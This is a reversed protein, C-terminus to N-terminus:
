KIPFNLSFFGKILFQCSSSSPSCLFLKSLYSTLIFRSVTLFSCLVVTCSALVTISSPAHALVPSWPTTIPPLCPPLYVSLLLHHPQSRLPDASSLPSPQHQPPSWVFLPITTKKGRLRKVNCCWFGLLWQLAWQLRWWSLRVRSSGGEGTVTNISNQNRKAARGMRAGTHMPEGRTVWLWRLMLASSNHSFLNEAVHLSLFPSHLQANVFKGRGGDM